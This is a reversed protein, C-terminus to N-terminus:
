ELSAPKGNIALVNPEALLELLRRGQLAKITAGLNLDPRFLFVNLADTLTAQVRNNEVTVRPPSFAGTTVAGPTNLAGLSFINAGLERSWGRDVNAFRVKLLIQPEVAPIKVNLLNIPKGLTAAVTLAREATTKDSVTGRLYVNGGELEISVDPANTTKQLQQRVAELRTTSPLVNLDFFMRNGGQQWVVLTTEGARKGNILVERPGVAVAEAITGNAVSVREITVPSDMSISKDVTVTLKRSQPAAPPAQISGAAATVAAAAPMVPATTQAYIAAAAFGMVGILLQM